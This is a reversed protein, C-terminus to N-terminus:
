ERDEERPNRRQETHLAWPLGSPRSGATEERTYHIGAGPALRSVASFAGRNKVRVGVGRGAFPTESTLTDSVTRLAEEGATAKGSQTLGTVTGSERLAEGPERPLGVESVGEASSADIAILGGSTSGSSGGSSTGDTVPLGKGEDVTKGCGISFGARVADKVFLRGARTRTPRNSDPYPKGFLRIRM